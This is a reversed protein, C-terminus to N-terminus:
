INVLAGLIGVVAAFIGSQTIISLAQKIVSQLGPNVPYLQLPLFVQIASFIHPCSNAPYM